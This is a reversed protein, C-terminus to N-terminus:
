CSGGLSFFSLLPLLGIVSVKWAKVKGLQGDELGQCLEVISRQSPIGSATFAYDRLFSSSLLTLNNANYLGNIRFCILL